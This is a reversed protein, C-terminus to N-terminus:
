EDAQYEKVTGEEFKDFIYSVLRELGGVSTKIQPIILIRNLSLIWIDFSSGDKYDAVSAHFHPNTHFVVKTSNPYKRIITSFTNLSEKDKFIDIDYEISLPSSPVYNREKLGKNQFLNIRRNHYGELNDLLNFTIDHFLNNFFIHGYKTITCNAIPSVKKDDDKHFFQFKIKKFWQGRETAEDFVQKLIKSTWKRDSDYVPYFEREWKSERKEKISLEKVVLDYKRALKQEFLYLANKLESQKWYLLVLDPYLRKIFREILNNWIFPYTISNISFLNEVQTERIFFICKYLSSNKTFEFKYGGIDANLLNLRRRKKSLERFYDFINGRFYLYQLHFYRHEPLYPIWSLFATVEDFNRASKIKAEFKPIIDRM